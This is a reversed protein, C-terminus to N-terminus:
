KFNYNFNFNYNGRAGPNSIYPTKKEYLLQSDNPNSSNSCCSSLGSNRKIELQRLLRTQSKGYFSNLDKDCLKETLFQEKFKDNYKKYHVYSTPNRKFRNSSKSTNPSNGTFIQGNAWLGKMKKGNNYYVGYGNQKDNKWEGEYYKDKNWYYKGNGHKKGDLFEGEYITGDPYILKGKGNMKGEKWNGEYTRKDGWTYTGNGSFLNQDFLGQYMNGNKWEYKGYKKKGALYFGKFYSGDPFIEEGNGQPLGDYFNGKYISGDAKSYEGYGNLKNQSFSGTLITKNSYIVRGYGNLMGDKFIGETRSDKEKSYNFRYLIGYGHYKKQNNWSGKYVEDSSTVILYPIYFSEKETLEMENKLIPDKNIIEKFLVIENDNLLKQYYTESKSKLVINDNILKNGDLEHEVKSKLNKKELYEKFKRQLLIIKQLSNNARYKSYDFIKEIPKYIDGDPNAKCFSCVVGM